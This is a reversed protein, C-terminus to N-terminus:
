VKVIPKIDHKALKVKSFTERSHFLVQVFSLCLFKTSSFCDEGTTKQKHNKYHNQTQTKRSSWASKGLCKLELALSPDRVNRAWFSLCYIFVSPLVFNWHPFSEANWPRTEKGTFWFTYFLGFHIPPFTDRQQSPCFSEIQLVCKSQKQIWSISEKAKVWLSVRKGPLWRWLYEM